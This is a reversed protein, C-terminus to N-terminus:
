AIDVIDVPPIDVLLPPIADNLEGNISYIIIINISM